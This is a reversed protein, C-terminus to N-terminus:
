VIFAKISTSNRQRESNESRDLLETIQNFAIVYTQQQYWDWAALMAESVATTDTM